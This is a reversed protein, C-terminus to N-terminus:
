KCVPKYLGKYFIDADSNNFSQRCAKALSPNLISIIQLYQGVLDPRKRSLRSLIFHNSRLSSLAISLKDEKSYISPNTVVELVVRIDWRLAQILAQESKKENRRVLTNHRRKLVKFKKACLEQAM